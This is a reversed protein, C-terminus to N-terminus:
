PNGFFDGVKLHVAASFDASHVKAQGILQVRSVQIRGNSCAVEFGDPLLSTVEGPQHKEGDVVPRCDFFKVPVQHYSSWAGPKPNAGRILNYVRAVPDSWNIEVLEPTCLPEYTAQSNDQPIHPATGTKIMQIAEALADVGLPFLKEFYLSGTTDDPSIEVEKQLLIPGTDIGKDPWFISLGTTQEGQIVAWNIASGGRHHPLLSPHYQITSLPPFFLIREPIIQAVFAMICLEPQLSVFTDFVQPDRMKPPQFVPVHNAKALDCLPNAADPPDPPCFVGAVQDGDELIRSFVKQGFAAQGILVIRM